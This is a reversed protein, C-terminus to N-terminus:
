FYFMQTFSIGSLKASLFGPLAMILMFIVVAIIAALWAKKRTLGSIQEAGILILIVQWIFYLDVLGLLASFFMGAGTAGAVLGSLGHSTILTRSFLMALIRVISRLMLPVGAWGVLNASLVSKSRSGSLTLSLHLLSKLLFWSIWIVALSGLIPFVYLFLPSTQSAQANMFQQQQEASYYQFDPPLNTGMEIALRKIPGAIIAEIIGLVSLGLLPTLWNPKEESVIAQLTKKPHLIIPLLWEFHLKNKHNNSKAINNEEM